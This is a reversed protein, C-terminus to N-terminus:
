GLIKTATSITNKGTKILTSDAMRAMSEALAPWLEEDIDGAVDEPHFGPDAAYGLLFLLRTLGVKGKPRVQVQLTGSRFAGVMGTPLLLWRGDVAQRVDVLRSASLAQAQERPMQITAGERDLEDLVILTM